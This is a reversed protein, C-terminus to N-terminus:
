ERYRPKWTESGKVKTRDTWLIPRRPLRSKRLLEFRVFFTHFLNGKKDKRSDIRIFAGEPGLLGTEGELERAAAHRPKEGHDVRGGPLGWKNADGFHFLIIRGERDMVLIRVINSKKKM